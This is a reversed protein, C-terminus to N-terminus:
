SALSRMLLALRLQVADDFRRPDLGTLSAVKELRYTLTNRHIPIRSATRLPSCDEAFYATLTQLLEPQRDLPSLLRYATEAKMEEDPLGILGAIGLSELSHIRSGGHLRRGLSLVSRAERYSRSFGQPGPYYRGLGISIESATERRLNELLEVAERRSTARVAVASDDDAAGYTDAFATAGPPKIPRLVVVEGDGLYACTACPDGFCRRIIRIIRRTRHVWERDEHEAAADPKLQKEPRIYTAADVLMVSQPPALVIGLLHGQSRVEAEDTIEGRLLERVFRDCMSERESLQELFGTEIVM